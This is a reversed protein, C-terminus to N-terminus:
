TQIVKFLKEYECITSKLRKVEAMLLEVLDERKKLNSYDMKTELLFQVEESNRCIQLLPIIPAYEKIILSPIEFKQHHNYLFLGDLTTISFDEHIIINGLQLIPSIHGYNSIFYSHDSSFIFKDGIESWYERFIFDIYGWQYCEQDDLYGSSVVENDQKLLTLSVTDFYTGEEKIIRSKEEEILKLIQSKLQYIYM